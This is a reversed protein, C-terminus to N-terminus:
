GQTCQAWEAIGTWRAIPVRYSGAADLAHSPLPWGRRIADPNVSALPLDSAGGAQPRPAELGWVAGCWVVAHTAPHVARARCVVGGGSKGHADALESVMM